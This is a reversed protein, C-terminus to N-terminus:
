ERLGALRDVAAVIETLRVAFQEDVVVVEGRAVRKGNALIDVPEGAMKDLEIVAGPGLQLVDGITRRARGLEVSIELPVDLLMQIQAPPSSPPTRPAQVPAFEAPHAQPKPAEEAESVKAADVLAEIEAQTLKDDM